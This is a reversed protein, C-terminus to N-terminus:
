GDELDVYLDVCETLLMAMIGAVHDNASYERDNRLTSHDYIDFAIQKVAQYNDADENRAMALMNSYAVNDGCTYYRYRVCMERVKCDDLWRRVRIM